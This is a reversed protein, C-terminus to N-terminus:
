DNSRMADFHYDVNLIARYQIDDRAYAVEEIVVNSDDINVDHVNTYTFLGLKARLESSSMNQLSESLNFGADLAQEKSQFTGLDVNKQETLTINSAFASSTMIISATLLALKKM